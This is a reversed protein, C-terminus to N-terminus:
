AALSLRSFSDRLDNTQIRRTQIAKTSPTSPTARHNRRLGLNAGACVREGLQHIPLQVVGETEGAVDEAVRGVYAEVSRPAVHCFSSVPNPVNVGSPLAINDM